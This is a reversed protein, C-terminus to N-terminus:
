HPSGILLDAGSNKYSGAVCDRFKLGWTMEMFILGINCSQMDILCVTSGQKDSEWKDM